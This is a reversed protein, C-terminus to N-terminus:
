RRGKRREQSTRSSTASRGRVVGIFEDILPHDNEMRWALAVTTTPRDPAPRYVLDKRSGSRAISMPVRLAAACAVALEISDPEADDIARLDGLDRSTISELEALGHDRSLWVVPQEEYLRIVHMGTSELPLRVFCMDLSLDCLRLRQQAESVAVIELPDRPRREQWVRRWKTLTVGPVYGIRLREYGAPPGDPTKRSERATRTM